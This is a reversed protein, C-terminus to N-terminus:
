NELIIMKYARWLERGFHMDAEGLSIRKAYCVELQASNAPGFGNWFHKSARDLFLTYVAFVKKKIPLSDIISIVFWMNVQCFLDYEFWLNFESIM